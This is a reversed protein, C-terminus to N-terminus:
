QPKVVGNMVQGSRRSWGYVLETGMCVSFWRPMMASDTAAWLWEPANTSDHRFVEVLLAAALIDPAPAPVEHDILWSTPGLHEVLNPWEPIQLRLETKVALANTAESDLGDRIAAFALLQSLADPGFGAGTATRRLRVIEREV